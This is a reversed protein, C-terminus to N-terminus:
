RFQFRLVPAKEQRYLPHLRDGGFALYLMRGVALMLVALRAIMLIEELRFDNRLITKNKREVRFENFVGDLLEVLLIALRLGSLTQEFTYGLFM